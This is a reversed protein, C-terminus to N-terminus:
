CQLHCLESLVGGFLVINYANPSHLRSFCPLIFIKVSLCLIQDLFQLFMAPSM